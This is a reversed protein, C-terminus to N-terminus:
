KRNATSATATVRLDSNEGPDHVLMVPANERNLLTRLLAVLSDSRKHQPSNSFFLYDPLDRFRLHIVDGAIRLQTKHLHFLVPSAHALEHGACKWTADVFAGYLDLMECAELEARFREADAEVALWLDNATFIAREEPLVVFRLKSEFEKVCEHASMQRVLAFGEPNRHPIVIIESYNPVLEAFYIHQWGLQTGIGVAPLNAHWLTWVDVEGQCLFIRDTHFEKLRWLGYLMERGSYVSHWKYRDIIHEYKGNM